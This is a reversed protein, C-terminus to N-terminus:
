MLYKYYEGIQKLAHAMFICIAYTSAVVIVTIIIKNRRSYYRNWWVLPLALATVALIAGIVVGDRFYWPREEKKVKLSNDLFEGCYRCKVAEVQIEEACFPCKKM